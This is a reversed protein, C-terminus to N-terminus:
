SLGITSVLTSIPFPIINNVCSQDLSGVPQWCASCDSSPERVEQSRLSREKEKALLLSLELFDSIPQEPDAVEVNQAVVLKRHVIPRFLDVRGFNDVKLLELLELVDSM